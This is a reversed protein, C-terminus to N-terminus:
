ENKEAELQNIIQETTKMMEEYKEDTEHDLGALHLLGHILLFRVEYMLEHEFSEAQNVVYPFSIFIQGHEPTLLFSLVDTTTDQNRYTANLSQIMTDDVCILEVQAPVMYLRSVEDAIKQVFEENLGEPLNYTTDNHLRSKM